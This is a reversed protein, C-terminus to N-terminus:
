IVRGAVWSTTSITTLGVGLGPRRAHWIHGHGAYIAVHYVSSGHRFFILDGAQLRNKAIKHSRAYQQAATRPLKLGARHMVYGTFGSCDFARPGTAGWVYPRGKLSAATKLVTRVRSAHIRALRAAREALATRRAASTTTSHTSVAPAAVPATAASAPAAYATSGFAAFVALLVAFPLALRRSRAQGGGRIAHLV